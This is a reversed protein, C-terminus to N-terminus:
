SMWGGTVQKGAAGSVVKRAGSGVRSAAMHLEYCVCYAVKQIDGTSCVFSFQHAM